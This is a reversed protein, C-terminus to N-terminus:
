YRSKFVISPQLTTRFEFGRVERVAGDRGELEEVPGYELARMPCAAVCAPERNDALRDACLTCMQMKANDESGFQPVDYSCAELCAGCADRGLCADRDVAMVGDSDRKTIAEAPCAEMCAPTLCHCCSLSMYSLEVDPYTGQEFATLRRWSVDTDQIDHWDRCAVVCAYCGTCRSQDFFFGLQM